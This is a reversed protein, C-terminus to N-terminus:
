DGGPTLLKLVMDDWEKSLALQYKTYKTPFGMYAMMQDEPNVYVYEPESFFGSEDYWIYDYTSRVPSEEKM